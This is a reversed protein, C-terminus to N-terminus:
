HRVARAHAHSSRPSACGHALPAAQSVVIRTTPEVDFSATHLLDQLIAMLEQALVVYWAVLSIACMSAGIVVEDSLFTSSLYQACRPFSPRHRTGHATDRLRRPIRELLLRPLSPTHHLGNAAALTPLFPTHLLGNAAAARTVRRAKISGNSGRVRPATARQQASGLRSAAM